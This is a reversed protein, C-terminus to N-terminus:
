GVAVSLHDLCIEMTPEKQFELLVAAYNPLSLEGTESIQMQM